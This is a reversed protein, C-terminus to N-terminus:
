ASGGFFKRSLAALLSSAAARVAPAGGGAKNLSFFHKQFWLASIKPIRKLDNAYDVYVIGFRRSYGDRWEFNDMLSWAYYRTVRVGAALAACMSDLYGHYYDQRFSDDLVGPLAASEEGPGSVGNETIMFEPGDYREHLWLLTKGFDKPTKFLWPANSPEGPPQGEPGVWTVNYVVNRPSGPAPAKVFYGCYFNVGFFDMSGVLLKSQAPTFAPLADGQSERM